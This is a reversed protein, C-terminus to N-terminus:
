AERKLKELEEEVDLIRKVHDLKDKIDNENFQEDKQLIILTVVQEKQGLKDFVDKTLNIAGRTWKKGNPIVKVQQATVIM